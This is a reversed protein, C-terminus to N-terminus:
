PSAPGRGPNPAPWARWIAPATALAFALFAAQAVVPWVMAGLATVAWVNHAVDAVMIVMTLMVGARPRVFLVVAALPDLVALSNWFVASAVPIGVSCWGCKILSAVHTCTGIALCLVWVLRASRAM